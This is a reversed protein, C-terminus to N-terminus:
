GIISIGETVHGSRTLIEQPTIGLHVMSFAVDGLVLRGRPVKPGLSGMYSTPTSSSPKQDYEALLTLVNRVLSPTGHAFFFDYCSLLHQERLLSEPDANVCPLESWDLGCTFCAFPRAQYSFLRLAAGCPCTHQLVLRHQLCATIHPLLLSRTLTGRESLCQPCLSLQFAHNRQILMRLGTSSLRDMEQSYTTTLLTSVSIALVQSLGELHILAPTIINLRKIASAQQYLEHLLYTVTTGSPWHNAEDCRLVLGALWEESRPGVRHPFTMHWAPDQFTVMEM